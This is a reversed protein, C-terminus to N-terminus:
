RSDILRGMIEGLSKTDNAPVVFGDRGDEVLEPMAGSDFVIVPKGAEFSEAVVLGFAEPLLSPVILVDIMAYAEGIRQHPIIGHTIIKAKGRYRKMLGAFYRKGERTQPAGFVHLECAEGAKLLELARVIAHLGKLEDIRGVYGFRILSDGGEKTRAIKDIPDIGHYLIHIRSPDVGNRILLDRMARSPAIFCAGTEMLLRKAEISQEVLYSFILGREIYSLAESRNLRRGLPRYLVAPIRGLAKGIGRGPWRWYNCCKVCRKTEIPRVCVKRKADLLAGSPCVIGAHHVGVVHPINRETCALAFAAKMGNIHVIDPKIGDIIQGTVQGMLPGLGSHAEVPTHARPNLAFSIVPIGDYEYHNINHDVQTGHYAGQTVVTVDHGRKQLEKALRYVYVQGGGYYDPFFGAVSLLIRM